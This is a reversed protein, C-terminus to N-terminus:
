GPAPLEVRVETGRGPASVVALAAGIEEARSRMNGLGFHGPGVQEPDFGRGDDAIRLVASAGPAAKWEAVLNSAGSHRAANSLAEQAIRYLQVRVEAPLRDDRALAAHVAVDGRSALADLTHQLLEALPTQEMADPRLEFLLQRMEALAGRNLRELSRAQRELALADPPTQAAAGALTGAIVNAAFLTQSVADHLDRAIRNREAVIAVERERALLQAHRMALAAQSGIAELLRGREADFYDPEQHDVRLVGVVQERAQLPLAMWARTARYLTSTRADDALLTWLWSLLGQRARNEIIPAREREIQEYRHLNPRSLRQGVLGRLEEDSADASRCGLLVVQGGAQRDGRAWISASSCDITRELARLAEDVLDGLETKGALGISLDQLTSLQQTRHELQRGLAANQKELAAIRERAGDVLRRLGISLRRLEESSARPAFNDDGGLDSRALARSTAGAQQVFRRVRAALWVAGLTAAMGGALVGAIGAHGDPRLSWLLAAAACAALLAVAAFQTPLARDEVLRRWAPHPV